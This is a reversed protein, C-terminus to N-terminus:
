AQLVLPGSPVCICPLCMGAPPPSGPPTSYAVKGSKISMACTGCNGARCGSEVPIQHAEALELLSEVNTTWPATVGSLDFRVEQPGSAGRAYGTAALAAS